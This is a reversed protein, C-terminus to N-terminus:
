GLQCNENELYKLFEKKSRKEEKIKAGYSYRFFLVIHFFFSFFSAPSPTTFMDPIKEDPWVIQKFLSDKPEVGKIPTSLIPLIPISPDSALLPFFIPISVPILLSLITENM